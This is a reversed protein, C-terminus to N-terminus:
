PQFYYSSFCTELPYFLGFPKRHPRAIKDWLLIRKKTKVIKIKSPFNKQQQFFTNRNPHWKQNLSKLLKRVLVKTRLIISFYIFFDSFKNSFIELTFKTVKIWFKIQPCPNNKRPMYFLRFKKELFKLHHKSFEHFHLSIEIQPKKYLGFIYRM